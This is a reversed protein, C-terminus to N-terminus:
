WLNSSRLPYGSPCAWRTLMLSLSCYAQGRRGLSGRLAGPEGGAYRAPKQVFPLVKEDLLRRLAEGSVNRDPMYVEFSDM